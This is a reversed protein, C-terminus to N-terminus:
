LVLSIFYWYDKNYNYTKREEELYKPLLAVAKRPLPVGFWLGMRTHKQKGKDLVVVPYVAAGSVNMGLM